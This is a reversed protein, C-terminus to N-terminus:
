KAHLRPMRTEEALINPDPNLECSPSKGHQFREAQQNAITESRDKCLAHGLEHAAVLDRLKDAQMHWRARLEDARWPVDAVLAEEIFTQRKASYTFAPSDPDLGRPLVIAKWDESRVLIWTWEQVQPLPYKALTQRLLAVDQYCREVTYGRSCVFHQLSVEPQPRAATSPPLPINAGKFVSITEDPGFSARPPPNQALTSSITGLSSM